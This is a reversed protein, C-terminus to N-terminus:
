VAQKILTLVWDVAEDITTDDPRRSLYMAARYDDESLREYGHECVDQMRQALLSVLRDLDFNRSIYKWIPEQRINPGAVDEVAKDHLVIYDFFGQVAGNVDEDENQFENFGVLKIM